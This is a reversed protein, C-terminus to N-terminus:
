RGGEEKLTRYKGRFYVLPDDLGSLEIKEIAGRVLMQYGAPVVDILSCYARDGFDTLVPGWESESSLVDAFVGGASPFLGAFIDAIRSAEAPLLHVVFRSSQRLAEYFGSTDNILGITQSPEGESLVMSSVTLGRPGESSTSTWVSVGAALRGRLQRVPTRKDAPTAFPNTDQTGSDVDGRYSFIHRM